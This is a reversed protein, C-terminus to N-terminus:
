TVPLFARRISCPRAPWGTTRTPITRRYRGSTESCSMRVRGISRAWWPRIFRRPTSGGSLAIRFRGRAAIAAAAAEAIARTMLPVLRELDPAVVVTPHPADAATSSYPTMSALVDPATQESGLAYCAPTARTSGPVGAIPGPRGAQTSRRRTSPSHGMGHAGEFLQGPSAEDLLGRGLAEALNQGLRDGEVRPEVRRGWGARRCDPAASPSSANADLRVGPGAGRPRPSRCSRRGRPSSWRAAAARPRRGGRCYRWSQPCISANKALSSPGGVRM